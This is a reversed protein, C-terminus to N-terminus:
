EDSEGGQEQAPATRSLYADITDAFCDHGCGPRDERHWQALSQMREREKATPVMGRAADREATLRSVEALLHDRDERMLKWERDDGGALLGSALLADVIVGWLGTAQGSDSWQGCARGIVDVLKERDPPAAVGFRACLARAYEGPWPAVTNWSRAALEQLFAIVEHEDLRERAPEPPEAHGDLLTYGCRTCTAEPRLNPTVIRPVFQVSPNSKVVWYRGAVDWSWPDEACGCEAAPALPRLSRFGVIECSGCPRQVCAQRTHWEEPELGRLLVEEGPYRDCLCKEGVQPTWKEENAM